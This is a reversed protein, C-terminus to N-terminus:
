AALIRSMLTILLQAGVTAVALAALFAWAWRRQPLHGVEIVLTRGSLGARRNSLHRVFPIHGLKVLRGRFVDLNPSVKRTVSGVFLLWVDKRDKVPVLLFRFPGRGARIGRDVDPTGQLEVLRDPEPLGTNELKLAQQSAALHYRFAGTELAVWLIGAFLVLVVVRSVRVAIKGMRAGWM